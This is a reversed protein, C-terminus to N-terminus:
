LFMQLLVILMKIKRLLNVQLFIINWVIQVRDLRVTSILFGNKVAGSIRVATCLRRVEFSIAMLSYVNLVTINFKVRAASYEM